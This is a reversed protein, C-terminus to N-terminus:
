GFALGIAMLALVGGCELAAFLCGLIPFLKQRDPQFLGIVGLLGGIGAVLLSLIMSCGIAIIQPDDERPNPNQAVVFLAGIFTGMIGLGAFVTLVVSAIGLGSHSPEDYRGPGAPTDYGQQQWHAWQDDTHAPEEPQQLSQGYADWPDPDDQWVNRDDQWDDSTPMRPPLSLDNHLMDSESLTGSWWVYPWRQSPRQEGASKSVSQERAM